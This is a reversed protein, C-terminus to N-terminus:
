GSFDMGFEREREDGMGLNGWFKRRFHKKRHKHITFQLGGSSGMLHADLFVFQVM